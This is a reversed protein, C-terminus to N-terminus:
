RPWNRYRALDMTKGCSPCKIIGGSKLTQIHGASLEAKCSPCSWAELRSKIEEVSPYMVSEDEGAAIIRCSSRPAHSTGHVMLTVLLPTRTAKDRAAGDVEAMILGESTDSHNQVLHFGLGTLVQMSKEYMEEPTWDYSEFTTEVTRLRALRLDFKDKGIPDPELMGILSVLSLPEAAVTYSRDDPALFSVAAIIEGRSSESLPKLTFRVTQHKGAELVPVSNIDGTVLKLLASPHSIVFAHVDRLLYSSTNSVKVTFVLTDGSLRAQREVSVTPPPIEKTQLPVPEALKPSTGLDKREMTSADTLDTGGSDVVSSKVKSTGKKSASDVRTRDSVSDDAEFTSAETPRLELAATLEGALGDKKCAYCCCATAALCLLIGLVTVALIGSLLLVTGVVILSIGICAIGCLDESRGEM